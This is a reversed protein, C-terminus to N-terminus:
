RQRSIFTLFATLQPPGQNVEVCVSNTVTAGGTQDNVVYGFKFEMGLVFVRLLLQFKIVVLAQGGQVRGGSGAEAGEAVTILAAIEIRKIHTEM